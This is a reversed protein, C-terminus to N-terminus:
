GSNRTLAKRLNKEADGFGAYQRMTWFRSRYMSPYVGRTFPYQGPLDSSDVDAGVYVPEVETGSSTAFRERRESSKAVAPDYSQKRWDDLHRKTM